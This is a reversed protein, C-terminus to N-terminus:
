WIKWPPSGSAWLENLEAAERPTDMPQWFGTHEVASLKREAVLAELPSTELVSESTLYQFLSYDAIMYGINVLESGIPKESFSTVTGNPDVEVVGFRSRPRSTSITLSSKQASHISIVKSLDVNAIGDGYTVLFPEGPSLYKKIALVRGGTPTLAGTEAVTINWDEPDSEHIVPDTSDRLNVTFDSARAQYNLFYDRIVDGRYGACVIFDKIGQHSLIKMIHWIIPKGGIEVMPKPKFETEERMRTGLGGALIVAKM